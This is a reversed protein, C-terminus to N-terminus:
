TIMTSTWNKANIRLLLFIKPVFALLLFFPPNLRQSYYVLNIHELHTCINGAVKEQFSSLSPNSNFTNKRQSIKCVHQRVRMNASPDVLMVKRRMKKKKWKNM